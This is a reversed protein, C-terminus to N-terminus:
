NLMKKTFDTQFFVCVCVGVCVCPCTNVFLVFIFWLCWLFCSSFYLVGWFVLFCVDFFGFDCGFVWIWVYMEVVFVCFCGFLCM